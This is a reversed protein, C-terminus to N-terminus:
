DPLHMEMIEFCILLTRVHWVYSAETCIPLLAQLTEKSYPEWTVGFEEQADLENTYLQLERQTM